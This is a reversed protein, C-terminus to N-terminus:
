KEKLAMWVALVLLSVSVILVMYVAGIYVGSKYMVFGIVASFNGTVLVKTGRNM